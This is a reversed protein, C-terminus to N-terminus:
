IPGSMVKWAGNARVSLYAKGATTDYHAVITGNDPTGGIAFDGDTVTTKGAGSLFKAGLMDSNLVTAAGVSPRRLPGGGGGVVNVTRLPDYVPAFGSWGTGLLTLSNSIGSANMSYRLRGNAGEGGITGGLSTINAPAAISSLFIFDDFEANTVDPNTVTTSTGGTWSVTTGSITVGPGGQATSLIYFDAGTAGAGKICMGDGTAWGTAVALTASTAAASVTGTLTTRNKKGSTGNGETSCQNFTLGRAGGNLYFGHQAAANFQCQDWTVADLVTAEIKCANTGGVFYTQRFTAKDIYNNSGSIPNGVNAMRFPYAGSLRVWDFLMEELWGEAYFQAQAAGGIEVNLLRLWAIGHYSAFGNKGGDIILDQVTINQRFDGDAPTVSVVDNAASIGSLITGLTNGSVQRFSGCLWTNNPLELNLVKFKRAPLLTRGGAAAATNICSQIAATDDAVGDGRAGFRRDTVDFWPVRLDLGLSPGLDALTSPAPSVPV